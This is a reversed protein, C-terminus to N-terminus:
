FRLLTRVGDASFLVNYKGSDQKLNSDFNKMLNEMFNPDMPNLQIQNIGIKSPEMKKIKNIKFKK